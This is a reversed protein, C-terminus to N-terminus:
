TAAFDRPTSLLLLSQGQRSRFRVLSQPPSHSPSSCLWAVHLLSSILDEGFLCLECLKLPLSLKACALELARALAEPRRAIYPWWRENERAGGDLGDGYSAEGCGLRALVRSSMSARISWRTPSLLGAEVLPAAEGPGLPLLGVLTTLAPSSLM